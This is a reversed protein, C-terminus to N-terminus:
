CTLANGYEEMYEDLETRSGYIQELIKELSESSLQAYEQHMDGNKINLRHYTFGETDTNEWDAHVVLNRLRGVELLGDVLGAYWALEVGRAKHFADCLRKFLDVKAAYMLKNIVLLGTADSRDSLMSCIGSDLSKELSNFHMVLMGVLGLAERVSDFHDDDEYDVDHALYQLFPKSKKKM